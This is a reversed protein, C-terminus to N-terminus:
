EAAKEVGTAARFAPMVETTMLEMSRRWKAGSDKDWDHSVLLVQGFPGIQERLAV